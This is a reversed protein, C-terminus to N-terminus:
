EIRAFGIYPDFDFREIKLKNLGITEMVALTEGPWLRNDLEDFAIISGKPMRPLFNEIAVRTPEYLDLDLYLLSVLLHPNDKIFEPITKCVDGKILNTKNVHGLFRNNDHIKILKNLEGYSDAKLGGVKVEKSTNRGLDM